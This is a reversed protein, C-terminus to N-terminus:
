EAKEREREKERAKAERSDRCFKLYAQMNKDKGIISLTSTISEVVSKELINLVIYDLGKEIALSLFYANILHRKPLGESLCSLNAITKVQPFDLKFLELTNLFTKGNSFNDELPRVMPDLLIDERKVGHDLLFDVYKQAILLSKEPYVSEDKEKDRILAVLKVHDEKVADLIKTIKRKNFEVDGIVVGNKAIRVVELLTETNRSRVLVKGGVEEVIPIVERLFPIENHLLSNANLEIYEAGQDIQGIVEKRIYEFDMKNMKDLVKKNCSNLSNGIIKLM